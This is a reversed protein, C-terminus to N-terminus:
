PGFAMAVPENTSIRVTNGANKAVYLNVSSDFVLADRIRHFRPAAGFALRGNLLLYTRFSM